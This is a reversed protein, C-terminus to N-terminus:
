RKVEGAKDLWRFFSDRAVLKMKRIRILPFDPLEMVDYAVRKSIGMLNAVDQPRLVPPLENIDKMDVGGKTKISVNQKM